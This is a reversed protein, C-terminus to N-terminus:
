QLPQHRSSRLISNIKKTLVPKWNKNHIKKFTQKETAVILQDYYDLSEQTVYYCINNHLM